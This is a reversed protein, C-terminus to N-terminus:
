KEWVTFARRQRNKLEENRTYDDICVGLGIFAHILKPPNLIIAGHSFTRGWKWVMFDGPGVQDEPIEVAFEKVWDLYLEESRNLHWQKPYKPDVAPIIGCTSYVAIPLQACDVGAGKVRAYHQYPTRLWSLAEEMVAHREEDSDPRLKM